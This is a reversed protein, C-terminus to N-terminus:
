CLAFVLASQSSCTLFSFAWLFVSSIIKLNISGVMAVCSRHFFCIVLDGLGNELLVDVEEASNKTTGWQLDVKTLSPSLLDFHHTFFSNM